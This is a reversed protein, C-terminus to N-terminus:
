QRANFKTLVNDRIRRDIQTSHGRLDNIGQHWHGALTADHDSEIGCLPGERRSSVPVLQEPNDFVEDLVGYFVSLAALPDFHSERAPIVLGLQRHAIVPRADGGLVQRAERLAEVTDVHRFAALLSPCAEAERDDLVDDVKVASVEGDLALRALACEEADYEGCMLGRLAATM